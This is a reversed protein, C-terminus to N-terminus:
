CAPSDESEPCLNHPGPNPLNCYLYLTALPPASRWAAGGDLEPFPELRPSFSASAPQLQSFSASAGLLDARLSRCPPGRVALSRAATRDMYLSLGRASTLLFLCPLSRRSRGALGPAVSRDVPVRSYQDQCNPFSPSTDEPLPVQSSGSRPADPGSSPPCAPCAEAVRVDTM